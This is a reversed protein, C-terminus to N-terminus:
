KKFLYPKIDEITVDLIQSLTTSCISQHISKFCLNILNDIEEESDLSKYYDLFIRLKM